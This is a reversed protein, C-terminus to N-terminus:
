PMKIFGFTSSAPFLSLIPSPVRSNLVVPPLDNSALTLKSRKKEEHLFDKCPSPSVRAPASATPHRTRLCCIKRLARPLPSPSIHSSQHMSLREKCITTAKLDPFSKSLTLASSPAIPRRRTHVISWKPHSFDSRTLHDGRYGRKSILLALAELYSQIM